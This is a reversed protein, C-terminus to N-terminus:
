APHAPAPAVDQGEVDQNAPLGSPWTRGAVPAVIRRVEALLGPDPPTGVARVNQEVTRASGMGVLTTAVGSYDLAFQLALASVDTGHAACVAAVERAAAVVADPAPHWDPPGGATLLGMHLPSANILGIGRAETFPRLVRDLATDMLNYRCYSLVTDVEVASAIKKLAGLPYGTIGVFRVKGEERLRYLAPLTQDIVVVPDVFEVDHVQIVDIVDTRLRQLSEEVSRVTREASFDFGDPLSKGYRGVKTALVVRERKGVLAEGLREEALTRGYYPAVDVYTIGHDIAADVARQGAGPDIAGFEDGLPSAGLGLVSVDLGTRGLPRYDM